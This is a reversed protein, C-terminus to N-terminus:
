GLSRCSFFWLVSIDFNMAVTMRVAARLADASSAVAADFGSVLGFRSAAETLTVKAEGTASAHVVPVWYAAFQGPLLPAQVQISTVPVAVPPNPLAETVPAIVNSLKSAVGSFPHTGIKPLKVRVLVAALEVVVISMLPASQSAVSGTPVFVSPPPNSKSGAVTPRLPVPDIEPVMSLLPWAASLSTPAIAGAGVGVAM